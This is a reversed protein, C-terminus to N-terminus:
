RQKYPCYCIIKQRQKGYFLEVHASLKPAFAKEFKVEFEYLYEFGFTIVYQQGCCHDQATILIVPFPAINFYRLENSESKLFLKRTHNQPGPRDQLAVEGGDGLPLFPLIISYTSYVLLIVSQSISTNYTRFLFLM